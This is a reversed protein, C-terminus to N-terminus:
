HPSSAPPPAAAACRGSCARCSRRPPRRRVEKPCYSTRRSWGIAPSATAARTSASVVASPSDPSASRPCTGLPLSRGSANLATLVAHATAGAGITVRDGDPTIGSLGRLDIVVAGTTASAGVYSHGGARVALPLRHDRAFTTAALVDPEGTAQVVAAPTQPDFQPDFLQAASRYDGDGPLSLTGQLRKRLGDWDAPYAGAPPTSTLAGADATLAAAGRLLARRSVGRRDHSNM